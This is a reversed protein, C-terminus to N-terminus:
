IFTYVAQGERLTDKSDGFPTQVTTGSQIQFQWLGPALNQELSSLMGLGILPCGITDPRNSSDQCAVGEASVWSNPAPADSRRLLLLLLIGGSSLFLFSECHHRTIMM